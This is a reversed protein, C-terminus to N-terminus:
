GQSLLNMSVLDRVGPVRNLFKVRKADAYDAGNLVVFMFLVVYTAAMVLQAQPLAAIPIMGVFRLGKILKAIIDTTQRFQQQLQDVGDLAKAYNPLGVESARVLKHMEDRIARTEYLKDLLDRILSGDKLGDFFEMARTIAEGTIEKGLLSLITEYAKGVYEVVLRYLQSVQDTKGLYEIINSSVIKAADALKAIGLSVLGRFAEQGRHSVENLIEELLDGILDSLNVKASHIDAVIVEGRSVGFTQMEGLLIRLYTETEHSAALRHVGHMREIVGAEEDEAADLLLQSIALDTMAKALLQLEAEVRVTPLPSELKISTANTLESSFGALQTAREVLDNKQLTVGGRQPISHPAPIRMLDRVGQVYDQAVTRYTRM